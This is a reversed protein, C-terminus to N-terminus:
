CSCSPQESQDAGLQLVATEDRRSLRSPAPLQKTSWNCTCIFLIPLQVLNGASNIYGSKLPRSASVHQQTQTTKSDSRGRVCRTENRKPSVPPSLEALCVGVSNAWVRCLLALAAWQSKKRVVQRQLFTMRTERGWQKGRGGKEMTAAGGDGLRMNEEQVQSGTRISAISLKRCEERRPSSSRNAWSGTKYEPNNSMWSDTLARFIWHSIHTFGSMISINLYRSCTSWSWQLILHQIKKKGGM